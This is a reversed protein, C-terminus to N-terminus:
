WTRSASPFWLIFFVAWLWWRQVVHHPLQKVSSQMAQMPGHCPTIRCLSSYFHRRTGRAVQVAFRPFGAM